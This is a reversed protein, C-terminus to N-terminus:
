THMQGCKPIYGGGRRAVGREGRGSGGGGTPDGGRGSLGMGEGEALVYM